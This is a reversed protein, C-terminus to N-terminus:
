FYVIFFFYFVFGFFRGVAGGNLGLECFSVSVNWVEVVKMYTGSLRMLGGNTNSVNLHRVTMNEMRMSTETNGMMFMCGGDLSVSSIDSIIINYFEITM